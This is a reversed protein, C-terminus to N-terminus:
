WTALARWWESSAASTAARASRCPLRVPAASLVACSLQSAICAHMGLCVPSQSRRRWQLACPLTVRRGERQQGGGVLFRETESVHPIPVFRLTMFITAEYLAPMKDLLHVLVPPLGSLSECYVIGIGPM